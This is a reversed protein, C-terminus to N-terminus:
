RVPTASWGGGQPQVISDIAKAHPGAEYLIGRLATERNRRKQAIVADSDGFQPFYQKRANDFETEAIVAGSERRLVANIFDRQAQELQQEQASVFPTASVGRGLMGGILPVSEAAGKAYSPTVYGQKELDDFTQNASKMRAGFLVAKGQGETPPKLPGSGSVPIVLGAPNQETPPYVWGGAEANFQPKQKEIKELALREQAIGLNGMAIQDGFTPHKQLNMGAQPRVFQVGRGTDVQVPATYGPMPQGVPRGFRDLGQILKQGQPGEVEITRAVEQRGINELGAVSQLQEPSILGQLVAQRAANINLGPQGQMAPRQVQPLGIENIGIQPESVQPAFLQPLLERRRQDQEQQRRMQQLQMDRLQRNIGANEQVLQREQAGAYGSLGALGARGLSNIPEGRRAGALGGFTAALLGQGAPTQLFDLLGNAM